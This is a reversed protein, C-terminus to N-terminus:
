THTYKLLELGGHNRMYRVTDAKSMFMLPTYIKIDYEMGERLSKEIAAITKERCDPYGSYDTQCVGTVLNKIGHNYAYAGALTLFIINRGPVFTDPLGIDFDRASASRHSSRTPLSHKVLASNDGLQDFIKNLRLVTHRVGLKKSIARAASLEVKHCQGYDFSLTEVKDFHSTAWVLCTTSDQGGSHLVLVRSRM